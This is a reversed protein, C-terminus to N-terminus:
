RIVDLGNNQEVQDRGGDSWSDVASSENAEVEKLSERSRRAQEQTSPGLVQASQVGTMIAM